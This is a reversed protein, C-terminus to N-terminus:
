DWEYGGNSSSRDKAAAGEMCKPGHVSFILGSAAAAASENAGAAAAASGKEVNM